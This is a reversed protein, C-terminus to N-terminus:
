WKEIGDIGFLKISMKKIMEKAWRSPSNKGSNLIDAIDEFTRKEIYHMYFAQFKHNEGKQKQEAELEQMARDINELMLATKLKSQRISDLHASESLFFSYKESKLEASESIATEIHKKMDAYNEMLVFTNHIIKKADNKRIEKLVGEAARKAVKELKEDERGPEKGTM